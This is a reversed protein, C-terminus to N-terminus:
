RATLFETHNTYSSPSGDFKAFSLIKTRKEGFVEIPADLQVDFEFCGDTKVSLLRMVNIVGTFNVGMYNGAVAQGAQM